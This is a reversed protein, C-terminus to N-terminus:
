ENEKPPPPIAMWLTPMPDDLWGLWGTEEGMPQNNFSDQFLWGSMYSEQDSGDWVPNDPYATFKAIPASGWEPNWIFVFQEEPATSIPQWDSM